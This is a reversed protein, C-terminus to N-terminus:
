WYFFLSPFSNFLVPTGENRFLLLDYFTVCDMIKLEPDHELSFGMGFVREFM